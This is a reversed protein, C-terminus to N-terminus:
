KLVVLKANSELAKSLAAAGADGIQKSDFDL